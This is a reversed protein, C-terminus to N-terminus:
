KCGDWVLLVPLICWLHSMSDGSIATRPNKIPPNSTDSPQKVESLDRSSSRVQKPTYVQEPTEPASKSGEAAPLADPVPSVKSIVPKKNTVVAPLSLVRGATVRERRKQELNMLRLFTLYAALGSLLVVAAMSLLILATPSGNLQRPGSQTAGLEAATVPFISQGSTSPLAAEAAEVLREPIPHIQVDMERFPKLPLVAAPARESAIPRCWMFKKILRISDRFLMGKLSAPM